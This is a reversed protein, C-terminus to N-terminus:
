ATLYGHIWHQKLLMLRAHIRPLHTQEPQYSMEAESAAIWAAALAEARDSLMTARIGYPGAYIVVSSAQHYAAILQEVAATSAEDRPIFAILSSIPMTWRSITRPTMVADTLSLLRPATLTLPQPADHQMLSSWLQQPTQLQGEVLCVSTVVQVKWAAEPTARAMGAIGSTSM